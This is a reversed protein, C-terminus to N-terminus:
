TRKVKTNTEGEFSKCDLIHLVKNQVSLSVAAWRKLDPTSTGNACGLKRAVLFQFRTRYDKAPRSVQLYRRKSSCLLGRIAPRPKGVRAIQCGPKKKRLNRNDVEIDSNRSVKRWNSPVKVLRSLTVTTADVVRASHIIEWSVAIHM